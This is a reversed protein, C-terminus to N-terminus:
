CGCSTLPVRWAVTLYVLLDAQRGDNIAVHGDSFDLSYFFSTVGLTATLQRGLRADLGAALTAALPSPSGYSAYADGGHRVTGLGAGLWLPLYAGAPRYVAQAALAVVRASTASTVFGGPTALGGGFRSAATAVVVQVGWRRGLLLRAAGGWALGRLDSPRSPLATSSVANPDFGGVPAYVSGLPGIEIAAQAEATSQVGAAAAAVGLAVLALDAASRVSRASM